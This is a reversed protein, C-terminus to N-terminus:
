VFERSDAGDGRRSLLSPVVEIGAAAMDHLNASQVARSAASTCDAIVVTRYDHSVADFATARVCNPTQTGAVLVTEIGREDLLRKLDTQFFGSFRKKVVFVDGPEGELGEVPQAGRSGRAMVDLAGAARMQERRFAEMDSGGPEYERRIWAIAGGRGRVLAVTAVLAPVTAAAGSVCLPQGPEVFARQMDIVLLATRAWDPERWSSKGDGCRRM